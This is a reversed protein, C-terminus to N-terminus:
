AKKDVEAVNVEAKSKGTCLCNDVMVMQAFALVNSM